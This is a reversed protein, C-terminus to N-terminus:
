FHETSLDIFIRCINRVHAHLHLLFENFLLSEFCLFVLDSGQCILYLFVFFFIIVDHHPSIVLVLGHSVFVFPIKHQGIIVYVVATELCFVLKQFIRVDYSLLELFLHGLDLAEFPVLIFQSVLFHFMWRM